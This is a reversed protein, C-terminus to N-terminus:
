DQIVIFLEVSCRGGMHGLALGCEKESGAGETLLLKVKPGEGKRLNQTHFLSPLFPIMEEGEEQAGPVGQLPQPYELHVFRVPQVDM